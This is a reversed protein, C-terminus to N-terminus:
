FEPSFKKWLMNAQEQIKKPLKKFTEDEVKEDKFGMNRPLTKGRIAAKEGNELVMLKLGIPSVDSRCGIKYLFSIEAYNNKDLDSITLSNSIFNFDNDFECDKEFDTIQRLLKYKNKGTEIYHQVFLTKSHTNDTRLEKMRIILFNAGNKDNFRVAKEVQYNEKNFNEILQNSLNKTEIIQAFCNISILSMILTKYNM